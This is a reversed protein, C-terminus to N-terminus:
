YKTASRSLRNPSETVPARAERGTNRMTQTATAYLLEMGRHRVESVGFLTEKNGPGMRPIVEYLLEFPLLGLAMKRRRYRYLVGRLAGGLNVSSPASGLLVKRMGKKLSGVM